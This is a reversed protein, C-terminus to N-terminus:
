QKKYFWNNNSDYLYDGDWDSDFSDSERETALIERIPKISFNDNTINPTYSYGTLAGIFQSAGVEDINSYTNNNFNIIGNKPSKDGFNTLTFSGSTAIVDENGFRVVKMEPNFKKM